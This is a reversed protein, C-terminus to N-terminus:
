QLLDYQIEAYGREGDTSYMKKFQLKYYNGESDKIVYFRDEKLSPAQGPGGGNRWDAGIADQNFNFELSQADDLSFGDYTISEDLPVEAAGTNNRNILIFDSFSYPIYGGMFPYVNGFTGYMIDWGAKKPEADASGNDLDFFSFNYADDKSIDITEFTSSAIDAYQLTYGGGNQIVRIKKWNRNDGNRSIIYVKNDSDTVSVKNLALSDLDGNPLDIWDVANSNYASYSQTAGFGVTDEATVANLDNKEIEQAMINAGNNIIVRFDDGSYFGLDWTYKDVRTQVQKSLDFYAQHTFEEGGADLATNGSLAVFNESFVVTFTVQDGLDLVGADDSITLTISEDSEINLASGASITVIVSEDGVAYPIAVALDSAAPNTFFDADEGYTLTASTIQVSLNGDAEAPRSFSIEIDASTADKTIGAETNSFNVRVPAAEDEECATNGLILLAALLYTTIRLNKM